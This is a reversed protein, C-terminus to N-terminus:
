SKNLWESINMFVDIIQTRNTEDITISISMTSGFSSKYFTLVNNDYSFQTTISFTNKADSHPVMLDIRSYVNTMIDNAFSAIIKWNIGYLADSISVTNQKLVTKYLLSPEFAYEISAGHTQICIKGSHFSCSM